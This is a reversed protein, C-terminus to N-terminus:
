VLHSESHIDTAGINFVHAIEVHLKKVEGKADDLVEAICTGSLMKEGSVVFTRGFQIDLQFVNHDGRKITPMEFSLGDTEVGFM